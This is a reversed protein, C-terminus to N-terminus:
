GIPKQGTWPILPEKAKARSLQQNILLLAANQGLKESIEFDLINPICYWPTTLETKKLTPHKVTIRSSVGRKDTIRKIEMSVQEWKNPAKDNRSQPVPIVSKFFLEKNKWDEEELREKNLISPDAKALLRLALASVKCAPDKHFCGLRVLEQSQRLLHEMRKNYTKSKIDHRLQNLSKIIQKNQILRISSQKPFNEKKM